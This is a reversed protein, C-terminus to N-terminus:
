FVTGSGSSRELFIAPYPLKIPLESEAMFLWQWTNGSAANFLNLACLSVSLIHYIMFILLKFLSSDSPHLYCEICTALIVILSHIVCLLYYVFCLFYQNESSWAVSIDVLESKKDQHRLCITTLQLLFDKLTSPPLLDMQLLAVLVLAWLCAMLPNEISYFFM